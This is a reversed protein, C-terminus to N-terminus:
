QIVCAGAYNQKVEQFDFPQRSIVLVVMMASGTMSVTFVRASEECGDADSVWFVHFM